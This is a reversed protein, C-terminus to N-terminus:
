KVINTFRARQTVPDFYLASQTDYAARNNTGSRRSFHFGSGGRSRKYLFYLCFAALVSGIVLCIVLVIIVTKTTSSSSDACSSGSFGSNCLCAPKKTKSDVICQGNSSCSDLATCLPSSCDISGFDSSCKCSPNVSNSIDCVGNGACTLGLYSPCSYLSCDIGSWRAYCECVPIPATSNTANLSNSTNFVLNAQNQQAQQQQSTGIRCTGHGSCPIGGIGPCNLDQCAIGTFGDFCKCGGYQANIGSGLVTCNGQGNTCLNLYTCDLTCSSGSFGVACTSCDPGAFGVDCSCAAPSSSNGSFYCKGHGNCGNLANYSCDAETCMEGTFGAKCQCLPYAQLGVGVMHCTGNGSCVGSNISPCVPISCDLGKWVPACTCAANYCGGHGSCANECDSAKYPTLAISYYQKTCINVINSNNLQGVLQVPQPAYDVANGLGLVSYANFGFGFVAGNFGSVLTHSLGAAISQAFTYNFLRAPIVDPLYIYRSQPQIGCQYDANKGFCYIVGSDSIVLSHYSGCTISAVKVSNDMFYQIVTPNSSYRVSSGLGLQGEANRGWSYVAGAANLFLVHDIGACVSIVNGYSNSPVIIPETLASVDAMPDYSAGFHHGFAYITSPTSASILVSFDVGAAIASFQLAPNNLIVLRQFSNVVGISRNLGLAGHNNFGAVYVYGSTSLVLSHHDGAAVKSGVIGTLSDVPVLSTIQYDASYRPFSSLDVNSSTVGLQGYFNDGIGYVIGYGAEIFLAHQLGCTVESYPTQYFSFSQDMLFPTPIVLEADLDFGGWQYSLPASGYSGILRPSSDASYLTSNIRTDIQYQLKGTTLTSVTTINFLPGANGRADLVQIILVRSSKWYGNYNKGLSQSFTILQDIYTKNIVTNLGYAQTVGFNTAADFIIEFNVGADYISASNLPSYARLSIVKPSILILNVSYVVASVAVGDSVAIGCQVTDTLSFETATRIFNRDYRFSNAGAMNLETQNYYVGNVKWYYTYNYHNIGSPNYISGNACTLITPTHYDDPIIFVSSIVPRPHQIVIRTVPSYLGQNEGDNASVECTVVTGEPIGVPLSNNSNNQVVGNLTWRYTLNFKQPNQDPDGDFVIFPSCTLNTLFTPYDPFILPATLAPPFNQVLAKTSNYLLGADFYDAPIATCSIHDGKYFLSGSLYFSSNTIFSPLPFTRAPTSQYQFHLTAYDTAATTAIGTGTFNDLNLNNIYQSPVYPGQVFRRNIFWFIDYFYVTDGDDDRTNNVDCYADLSHEIRDISIPNSPATIAMSIIVPPTNLIKIQPSLVSAGYVRGFNTVVDYPTVRCSVLDYRSATYPPLIFTKYVAPNLQTSNIYWTYNFQTLNYPWFNFTILGSSLCLLTSARMPKPSPNISSVAAAALSPATPIITVSSSYVPGANNWCADPPDVYNTDNSTRHIEVSCTINDNPLISNYYYFKDSTDEYNHVQQDFPISNGNLYFKITTKPTTPAFPDTATFSCLYPQNVRAQPILQPSLAVGSISMCQSSILSVYSILYIIAIYILM